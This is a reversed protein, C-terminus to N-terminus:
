GGFLVLKYKYAVALHGEPTDGEERLYQEVEEYCNEALNMEYFDGM